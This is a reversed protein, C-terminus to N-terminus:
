LDKKEIRASISYIDTVIDDVTRIIVPTVINKDEKIEAYSANAALFDDVTITYQKSSKKYTYKNAASPIVFVDEENVGDYSFTIIEGKSNVRKAENFIYGIYIKVSDDECNENFLFNENNIVDAIITYKTAFHNSNENFAFVTGISFVDEDTEEFYVVGKKENLVYNIAIVEEDEITKTSIGTVIAFGTNPNFKIDTKTVFMAKVSGNKSYLAGSYTGEHVLYNMSAVYNDESDEETLVFILTNTDIYSNKISESNGNYTNEDLTKSFDTAVKEIKSLKGSSNIRYTIFRNIDLENNWEINSYDEKFYNELNNKVSTTVNYKKVGNITLLEVVLADDLDSSDIGTRLIYAYDSQATINDFAFIKNTIGLYYTGTINLNGVEDWVSDTVKYDKKNITVTKEFNSVSTVTGSVVSDGLLVIYLYDASVIDNVILDDDIYCSDTYYAIINNEKFKSLKISKGNKDVLNYDIDTLEITKGDLTIKNKSSDVRTLVESTYFLAIIADYSLDNDNDIFTLEIDEKDEFFQISEILNINKNFEIIVDDDVSLTKTKNEDILYKITNKKTDVSIIDDSMLSISEVDSTSLISVITYVNGQVSIYMTVKQYVYDTIASDGTLLKVSDGASFRGDLSDETVTVNIKNSDYSNEVVGIVKYIKKNTLITKYERGNTGDLSEYSPNNGFSIQEMMPTELANYLLVAIDGRKSSNVNELLGLSNAVAIYGNPYGGKSSAVPEYGLACVVMKVAQEFTVTDDPGYTGDGHGNIINLLSIANIYNFAWHKSTVDDFIQITFSNTKLELMEYILKAMEARTVTQEPRFTDNEFGNVVDLDSLLKVAESVTTGSEVDSYAAINLSMGSIFCLSFFLAIIKRM